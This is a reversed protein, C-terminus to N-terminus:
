QLTGGSAAPGQAGMELLATLIACRDNLTDAELLAQKAPGDFPCLAAIAHVLAEPPASDVASWDTDFGNVDVYQRLAASLRDRDIPSNLGPATLDGAYPEFNARVQRYPTPAEMEAVVRFRAVGTLTILYRGDDTEAFATIRGVGGVDQLRPAAGVSQGFAPQIMGILREGALADDVMNLYRPEFINLPLTSRPLLIAQPLPFVPIVSPLDQSKRYGFASM